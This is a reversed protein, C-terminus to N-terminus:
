ETGGRQGSMMLLPTACIASLVAQQGWNLPYHGLCIASIDAPVSGLMSMVPDIVPLGWAWPM